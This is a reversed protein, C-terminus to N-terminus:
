PVKFNSLEFGTISLSIFLGFMICPNKNSRNFCVFSILQYYEKKPKILVCFIYLVCIKRSSSGKFTHASELGIMKSPILVGCKIDNNKFNYFKVIVRHASKLRFATNLM